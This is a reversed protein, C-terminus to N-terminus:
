FLFIEQIIIETIPFMMNRKIFWFISWWSDKVQLDWFSDEYCYGLHVESGCITWWKKDSFLINFKILQIVFQSYLAFWLLDKRLVAYAIIYFLSFDGFIDSSLNLEIM